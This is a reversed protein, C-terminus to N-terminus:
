SGPEQKVFIDYHYAVEREGLKDYLAVAPADGEDAQIFVASAGLQKAEEVVYQLLKTAIKRRRYAADVALDYIYVECTERELKHMVYATLGAVVKEEICAACVLTDEKRLQRLLYAESPPKALYMDHEDFAEAYLRNLARLSAVSESDPTLRKLVLEGNM